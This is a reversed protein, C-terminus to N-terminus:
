NLNKRAEEEEKERDLAVAGVKALTYRMADTTEPVNNAALQRECEEVIWQSSEIIEPDDTKKTIEQARLIAQKLADQGGKQALLNVFESVQMGNRLQHHM